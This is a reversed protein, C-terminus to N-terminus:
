LANAGGEHGSLASIVFRGVDDVVVVAPDSHKDKIHPAVARIVIGLAMIFILGDYKHFIDKTLQGISSYPRGAPDGRGQLVGEAVYLDAQPLGGKLREAVQLGEKTLILIALPLTPELNDAM